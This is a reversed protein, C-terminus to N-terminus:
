RGSVRVSVDGSYVTSLHGASEIILGGDPSVGRAVGSSAQGAGAHLVNVPKGCLYDLARWEAAFHAWGYREVDAYHKLVSGVVRGTLAERSPLNVNTQSLTAYPQDVGSLAPGEAVNLGIGTITVAHSGSSAPIEILIGALKRGSLLVDNPWKLALGLVGLRQLESVVAIGTVLSLGTLAMAPCGFFRAVSVTISDPPSYWAKGQRGVGATQHRTVCLHPVFGQSPPLGAIAERLHANTSGLTEHAEVVVQSDYRCAIASQIDSVSLAVVVAGTAGDGWDAAFWM